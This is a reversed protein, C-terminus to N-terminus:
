SEALRSVGAASVRLHEIDRGKHSAYPSPLDVSEALGERLLRNSVGANLEQRPVPKEAIRRLADLSAPKLPHTQEGNLPKM